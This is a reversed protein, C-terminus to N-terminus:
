KKREEVVITQTNYPTLPRFGAGIAYKEVLDISRLREIEYLLRDNIKILETERAIDTRLEMKIKMVSINQWVYLIIFLMMIFAMLVYQISSQERM